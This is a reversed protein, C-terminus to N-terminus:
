TKGNLFEQDYIHDCIVKYWDKAQKYEKDKELFHQRYRTRAEEWLNEKSAYKSTTFVPKSCCPMTIEFYPKNESNIVIQCFDLDKTVDKPTLETGCYPCEIYQGTVEHTVDYWPAWIYWVLGVLKEWPTKDIDQCIKECEIIRSETSLDM